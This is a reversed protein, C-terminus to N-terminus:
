QFLKLIERELTAAAEDYLYNAAAQAEIQLSLEERAQRYKYFASEPNQKSKVYELINRYYMKQGKM